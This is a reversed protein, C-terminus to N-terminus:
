RPHGGPSSCTVRQPPCRVGKLRWTSLLIKPITKTCATHLVSVKSWGTVQGLDQCQASHDSLRWILSLALIDQSCLSTFCRCPLILYRKHRTDPVARNSSIRESERQNFAYLKYPDDGVRWKKANLYRREDFQEWLDDWDADSPQTVHISLRHSPEGSVVLEWGDTLLRGPVLSTRAISLEFM